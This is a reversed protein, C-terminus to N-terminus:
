IKKSNEWLRLECAVFVDQNLQSNSRRMMKIAFLICKKYHFLLKFDVRRKIGFIQLFRKIVVYRKAVSFELEDSVIITPSENEFYSIIQNTSSKPSNRNTTFTYIQCKPLNM